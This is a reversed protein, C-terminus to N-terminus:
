PKATDVPLVLTMCTGNEDSQWEIRAGIAQARRMQNSLGKGGRLTAAPLHFGQGNDHVAVKVWRGDHRTTVRIHTARTHKIINAFAEQLIRLIHLSNRPDLWELSPVNHIDWHLKIGASELRPALRFRLTALLLLLDAQVPELSDITLKLDDICSKLVETLMSADLQGKEAQLLATLLSSGMGDHMDQMLRQRENSLTERHEVERLRQYSLRLEDERAKLQALLNANAQRVSENAALYRRFIIYMFILFAAINSYPGLYLNEISVYNNQLLWDYGGLLMGVVAWGGLLMGDRSGARRSEALGNVAVLTGTALLGLYTLPALGYADVVGSLLPLTLLGVGLTILTLVRNLRPKPRGHLENLFFHTALVMWFLSNITLWTFWDEPIPLKQEGVHYHLTRVFSSTSIFFFLLYVRAHRLCVWVILSFLGVALFAASSTYPLEVQLLYRLRYRWNPAERNVLWLSSLGGGTGQPRVIRLVIDHASGQLPVWLPINWGNWDIGGHSQYLLRGDGYVALQGDTKWRPIYLSDTPAQAPLAVRYWTIVTPPPPTELVKPAIILPRKLAHPLTVTEWTSPQLPTDLTLPAPPYGHSDVSAVQAQTLHWDPEAGWAVLTNCLSLVALLVHQWRRPEAVSCARAARKM